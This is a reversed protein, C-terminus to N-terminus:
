KEITQAKPLICEYYMGGHLEAHAVARRATRRYVDHHHPTGLLRLLHAQQAAATRSVVASFEGARRLRQLVGGDGMCAGRGLRFFGMVLNNIVSGYKYSRKCVVLENIM